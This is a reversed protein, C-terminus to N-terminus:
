RERWAVYMGAAVVLCAGPLMRISPSTSWFLWDIGAGWLLATYEIPAVVSAPALTLAQTIYHQGLAGSLGIAFILAAHSSRIPVWTALSLVLSIVGIIVLFWLVLAAPTETRSLIRTLIASAAYCLASGTAALGAALPLGSSSPKLIILVGALGLFVAGWHSLSIRESLLLAALLLILLPAAMYLSYVAGLSGERLAYIFGALMLVGCIGRLLHLSWRVPIIEHLRNRWWLPGLVFPLSALARIAGVQLPPYHTSLSKLLADMVSFVAVAIFMAAVGRARDSKMNHSYSV